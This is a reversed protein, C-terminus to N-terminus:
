VNNNEDKGVGKSELYEIRAKAINFYKEDIEIGIFNRKTNICAEGTSGSGMCFDLVLDNEETFLNIFFELTELPKENPHKKKNLRRMNFWNKIMKGKNNFYGLKNKYLILGYECAGVIRMNSKLVEASNNKVFVLPTYKIFDKYNKIINIIEFQQEYSCFILAKSDEKLNENIYNMM